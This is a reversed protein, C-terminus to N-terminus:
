VLLKKPAFTEAMIMKKIMTMIPLCMKKYFSVEKRVDILSVEQPTTVIIFTNSSSSKTTWTGPPADVVLYDIEGWDVDVVIVAWSGFVTVGASSLQSSRQVQLLMQIQIM